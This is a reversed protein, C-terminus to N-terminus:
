QKLFNVFEKKNTKNVYDFILEDHIKIHHFKQNEEIVQKFTDFDNNM